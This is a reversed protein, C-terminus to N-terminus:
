VILFQADCPANDEVRRVFVEIVEDKARLVVYALPTQQWGERPLEVGKVNADHFTISAIEFTEDLAAHINKSFDDRYNIAKQGATPMYYARTQANLNQLYKSFGGSERALQRTHELSVFVGFPQSFGVRTPGDVELRLQVEDM